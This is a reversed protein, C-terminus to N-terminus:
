FSYLAAPYGCPYKRITILYSNSGSIKSERGVRVRIRGSCGEVQDLIGIGDPCKEKGRLGQCGSEGLVSNCLRKAKKRM